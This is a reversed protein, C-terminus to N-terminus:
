AAPKWVAYWKYTRGARWYRSTSNTYPMFGTPTVWYRSYATSSASTSDSNTTCHTGGVGISSSGRYVYTATAYRFTSASNPSGVGFANYFDFFTFTYTVEDWATGSSATYTGNATVSLSDTTIPNAYDEPAPTWATPVSGKELKLKRIEIYDGSAYLSGTTSSPRINLYLKTTNEPITFTWECRMDEVVAGRDSTDSSAYVHITGYSSIAFAESNAHNDYLYARLEYSTNASPSGSFLKADCDFSLTYTEGAVLGNMGANSSTISINGFTIYPYAASAVGTRIGHEATVTSAASAVTTNSVQGALRPRDAAVVSPLLTNIMLNRGYAELDGTKSAGSKDHFTVGSLVHGPDVNDGTLDILTSGGYVVKNVAM